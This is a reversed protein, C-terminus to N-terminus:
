GVDAAPTTAVTLGYVHRAGARKLAQACAHLTAGTTIV